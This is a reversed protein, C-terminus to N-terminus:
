SSILDNWYGVKNNDNENPTFVPDDTSNYSDSELINEFEINDGTESNDSQNELEELEAEIM